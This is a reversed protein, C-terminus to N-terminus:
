ASNASSCGYQPSLLSRQQVIEQLYQQQDNPIITYKKESVRESSKEVHWSTRCTQHLHNVLDEFLINTGRRQVSEGITGYIPM